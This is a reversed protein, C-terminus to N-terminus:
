PNSNANDTNLETGIAKGKGLTNISQNSGNSINSLTNWGGFCLMGGIIFGGIIIAWNAPQGHGGGIFVKALQYAAVLIVVVGVIAIIGGGVNQVSSKLNTLFKGIEWSDATNLYVTMLDLM